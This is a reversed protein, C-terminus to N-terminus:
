SPISRATARVFADALAPDFHGGREARILSVAAEQQLPARYPRASTLADYVDAIAVIRAAPHISEGALGRPYGAGDWREHHEEAVRAATRLRPTQCRGLAWAGLRAHREVHRRESSSLGGPRALVEPRVWLKGIDHLSGYVRIWDAEAPCWGAELATASAIEGVRRLHPHWPSLRPLPLLLAEIEERSPATCGSCLEDLAALIRSLPPARHAEASTGRHRDPTDTLMHPRHKPPDAWAPVAVWRMRNDGDM